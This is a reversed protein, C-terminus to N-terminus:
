PITLMRWIGMKTVQNRERLYMEAIGSIKGEAESPKRQIESM